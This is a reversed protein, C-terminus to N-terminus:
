LQLKIRDVGLPASWYPTGKSHRNVLRKAVAQCLDVIFGTHKDDGNQYSFPPADRRYAVRISNDQRLRLRDITAAQVLGLLAILAATCAALFWKGYM